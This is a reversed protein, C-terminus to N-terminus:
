ARTVRCKGNEDLFMPHTFDFGYDVVGVIVGEGFYARDLDIGQHVLGTKTLRISSDLTPFDQTAIEIREIFQFQTLAEIQDIPSSILAVSKTKIIEKCGITELSQRSYNNDVKIFLKANDIGNQYQLLYKQKSNTPIQNEINKLFIYTDFSLKKNYETAFLNISILACLIITLLHKM